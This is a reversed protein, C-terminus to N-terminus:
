FQVPVEVRNWAHNFVPQKWILRINDIHSFLLTNFNELPSVCCGYLLLGGDSVFVHARPWTPYAITRRFLRRGGLGTIGPEFVCMTDQRRYERRARWKM